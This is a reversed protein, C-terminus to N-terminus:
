EEVTIDADTSVGNGSSDLAKLDVDDKTLNSISYRVVSSDSFSEVNVTDPKASFDAKEGTQDDYNGFTLTTGSSDLSFGSLDSDTDPSIIATEADASGRSQISALPASGFDLVSGDNMVTQVVFQTTNGEIYINTEYHTEDVTAIKDFKNKEQSAETDNKWVNYEDAQQANTGPLDWELRIVRQSKPSPDTTGEDTVTLNQVAYATNDDSDKEAETKSTTISDVDTYKTEDHETATIELTGDDREETELVRVDQKDEGDIGVSVPGGDVPDSGISSFTDNSLTFINTEKGENDVTLRKTTGDQLLVCLKYTNGQSMTLQRDTAVWDDGFDRVQGSLSGRTSEVLDHAIWCVDGPQVIVNLLSTEFTYIFGEDNQTRLMLEADRRVQSQRTVGHLNLKQQPRKGGAAEREVVLINRDYGIDADMFEVSLSDFQSERRKPQVQMSESLINQNTFLTQASKGSKDAYYRIGSEDGFWGMHPINTALDMFKDLTMEDDVVMDMRDRNETGGSGDDVDEDLYNQVNTENSSDFVSSDLGFGGEHKPKTVFSNILETRKDTWSREDLIIHSDWFLDVTPTSSSSTVDWNDWYYDVDLQTGADGADAEASAEFGFDGSDWENDNITGQFLQDGSTNELKATIDGNGSTDWEIILKLWDGWRNVGDGGGGRKEVSGDVVKEINVAGGVEQVYARYKDNIDTQIGFAVRAESSLTQDNLDLRIWGEFVDGRAPVNSLSDGLLLEEPFFATGDNKERTLSAELANSGEKVTTTQNNWQVDSDSTLEKITYESLDGDDFDDIGSTSTSSASAGAAHGFAGSDYDDDDIRTTAKKTDTSDYIEGIIETGSWDIEYRYWSDFDQGSDFNNTSEKTVSGGSVKQLILTEDTSNNIKLGLRYYDPGSTDAGFIVWLYADDADTNEARLWGEFIDGREPRTSLSSSTLDEDFPDNAGDFSAKLGHSGDHATTTTTWSVNSSSVIGGETYESIDDDEFDDVTEDNVTSVLGKVRADVQPFETDIEKLDMKVGLVACNDYTYDNEREWSVETVKATTATQGARLFTGPQNIKQWKQWVRRIRVDRNSNWDQNTIKVPLSEVLPQPRENGWFLRPEEGSRENVAAADDIQSTETVWTGDSSKSEVKFLAKAMSQLFFGNQTLPINKYLGDPFKLLFVAFDGVEIDGPTTPSFETPPEPSIDEDDDYDENDPHKSESLTKTTTDEEIVNRDIFPIASNNSGLQRNLEVTEYFDASRGEIRVDKIAKIPGESFVFVGKFVGKGGSQITNSHIQIGDVRHEGLVVPVPKGIANFDSGIQDFATSGSSGRGGTGRKPRSQTQVPKVTRQETM